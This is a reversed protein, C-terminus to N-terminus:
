ISIKDLIILSEVHPTRPFFNYLKAFTVNYSKKLDSLDRAQSEINCSLYIIRQPKVELIRKIVKPHLGGRPPDVILLKNEEIYQRLDHAQGLYAEASSVKNNEINEKAFTVADSNEEVMTISASKNKLSLGITGVGSYFDLVHSGTPVFTSIDKLAEEFVAPNIQFFSMVGFKYTTGLLTEELTDVQAKHLLETAVSAPSKPESYYITLNSFPTSRLADIDKTKVFLAAIVEGKKNSRIIITKLLPRPFKISDLWAIIKKAEENLSSTALNCPTIPIKKKETRGFMGLFFNNEEDTYIHYEMKTRYGLMNGDTYIANESLFFQVEPHEKFVEHAIEKKFNAEAKFSLIQWPSCSVFHEETADIRETSKVLISKALGDIQNRKKKVVEYEVIEGPLANWIHLKKEGLIAFGSGDTNLKEIKVQEVILLFCHNRYM